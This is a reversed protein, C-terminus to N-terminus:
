SPKEPLEETAEKAPAVVDITEKLPPEEKDIERIDPTPAVGERKLQDM